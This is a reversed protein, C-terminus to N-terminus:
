ECYEQYLMKLIDIHVEEDEIIRKLCKVINEDQIIQCQEEYKQIAKKEGMLANQLIYGLETPYQNYGPSWYAMGNGRHTWLRPNEGMLKAIQGFTALHHMEVISIKRFVHSLYERDNLFLHNYIYLSIASMESNQGGMNDLMMRGYLRNKENVKVPPYEGPAAYASIMTKGEAEKNEERNNENRDNGM